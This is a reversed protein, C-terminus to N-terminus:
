IYRVSQCEWHQWGLLNGTLDLPDTNGDSPFIEYRVALPFHQRIKYFIPPKRATKRLHQCKIVKKSTVNLFVNNLNYNYINKHLM